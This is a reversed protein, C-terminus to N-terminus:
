QGKPRHFWRDDTFEGRLPVTVRVKSTEKNNTQVIREIFVRNVPLELRWSPRKVDAYHILLVFGLELMFAWFAMNGWEVM